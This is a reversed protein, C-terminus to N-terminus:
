RIIIYTANFRDDNSSDCGGYFRVTQNAMKAALALSLMAQRNNVSENLVVSRASECGVAGWGSLNTIVVEDPFAGQIGIQEVLKDSTPIALANSSFIVFVIISLKRFYNMYAGKSIVARM